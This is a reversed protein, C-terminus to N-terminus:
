EVVRGAHRKRSKYFFASTTLRSRWQIVLRSGACTSKRLVSGDASRDFPDPELYSNIGSLEGLTRSMVDIEVDAGRKELRTLVEALIVITDTTLKDLDDFIENELKDKPRINNAITIRKILPQMAGMVQDRYYDRDLLYGDM